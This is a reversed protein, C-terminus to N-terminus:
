NLKLAKRTGVDTALATRLDSGRRRLSVYTTEDLPEGTQRSKSALEAAITDQLRFYADRARESLFLGGKEFYWKRLSVGLDQLDVETLQKPRAYKALDELAMWLEMYVAIRRSRLDLNFKNELEGRLKLVAVLYTAIGGALASALSIITVDNV